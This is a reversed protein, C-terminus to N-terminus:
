RKRGDAFFWANLDNASFRVEAPTYFEGGKKGASDAFYNILYEYAAGM